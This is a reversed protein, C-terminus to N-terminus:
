AYYTMLWGSTRARETQNACPGLYSMTREGVLYLTLHIPNGFLSPDINRRLYQLNRFLVPDVLLFFCPQM